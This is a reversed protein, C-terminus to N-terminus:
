CLGLILMQKFAAWDAFCLMSRISEQFRPYYNDSEEIQSNVAEEVNFLLVNRSRSLRDEIELAFQNVDVDAQVPVALQDQVSAQPQASNLRRCLDAVQGQLQVLSQFKGEILNMREGM